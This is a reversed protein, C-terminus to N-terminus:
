SGQWRAHHAKPWQRELSRILAHLAIMGVAPEPDREHLLTMIDVVLEVVDDHSVAILEKM